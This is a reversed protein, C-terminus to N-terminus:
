RRARARSAVGGALLLLGLLGLWAAPEGRDPGGTAPLQSLLPGGAAAVAVDIAATRAPPVNPEFPRAYGLQIATRGAGVAAFTFCQQGGAGPRAVAPPIYDDGLPRVVAADPARTISWSFGTTRNSDLKVAFRQGVRAQIQIPGDAATAAGACPDAQAAAVGATALVTAIIMAGSLGLALRGSRPCPM